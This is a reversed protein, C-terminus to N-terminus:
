NKAPVFITAADDSFRRFDGAAPHGAYPTYFHNAKDHANRWVNVYALPYERLLPLLTATYWDTVTVSELGTETFAAVKGRAAALSTAIGLTRRAADLYTPTGDAGGFHYVDAGMIDVYADGPYRELYQAEDRVRDPSYAWVVNDVDNDDMIDRTLHWLARYDGPTCLGAGWWFWSGTHEHWPRFIVAIRRGDADRLSDFFRAAATVADGFWRSAEPTALISSVVTTDSVEWSNSRGLPTTIHWSFTSIGGRADQAIIERRIREFPVGDLNVSDGNEIGGLDWSMVAPYAGTVELIDSRGTDGVWDHGYVPDDHHGFMVRGAAASETLRRILRSAPTDRRQTNHRRIIRLTSSDNDFVSNLGQPEQAPDGTYPDGLQWSDHVPRAEGGWGWFNVGRVPSSDDRLRGLIYDYYLDRGTTASGPTHAMGDRPFGFEEIVIPKAAGAFVREHEYIYEASYRIADAVTGAVDDRSIWNWNYPWIHINAYGINPDSHIRVWLDMDQECGFFGESGTSVLHHPDIAKIAAACDALWQAFAEKGEASFARPENAIQWSMIAPSASYPRGTVTSVRSVINRIHNIAMNKAADSLPFQSVYDVYARYGNRTPDPADGHGTWELYTGYGGSWEWANNLYIVAKMGREELRALLYDLGRLITDNYVGPATQLRPEVHSAISRSGDAGALIRLNDIGLEQLKDLERELRNRDGGVGESALIAGYWFNTGAFRYEKDGIYFRGDRVTVFDESIDTVAPSPATPESATATFRQLLSSLTVLSLFIATIISYRKM